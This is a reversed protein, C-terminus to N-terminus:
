SNGIYADHAAVIFETLVKSREGDELDAQRVQVGYTGWRSYAVLALGSEDLRNTLEENQPIKFETLVYYKHPRFIVFNRATGGSPALGIYHKNYKPGINPELKRIMDVLSDVIKLSELSSSSQWTARDVTAGEDEEDTGLTMIDLVRTAILTSAGNVELGKLQIAILPIFGNFLSIVNPFRSTINEGVIM